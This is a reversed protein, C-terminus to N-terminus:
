LISEAGYPFFLVEFFCYLPNHYYSIIIIIIIIVSNMNILADFSFAKM